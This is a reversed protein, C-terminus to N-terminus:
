SRGAFPPAASVPRDFPLGAAVPLHLEFAAELAVLMRLCSRCNMLHSTLTASFPKQSEDLLSEVLQSLRDPCANFSCQDSRHIEDSDTVAFQRQTNGTM